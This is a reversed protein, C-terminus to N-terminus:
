KQKSQEIYSQIERSTEEIRKLDKDLRLGFRWIRFYFFLGVPIVLGALINLWRNSFPSKHAGIILIPYNNLANLIKGDKSNSLEEVIAELRQSLEAIVCDKENNTFVKLYNAFSHLRAYKECDLSIKGLEDYLCAYDPDEIIVEKKSIHRNNRLGLIKRIAEIYTDMNFVVSDNNSKYTFFVGMPALVFTSIWAGIWIHWEGEKGMKTGMTNVIYYILFIIVSVIVPMGLGGKRIIAGLPAGIFFFVLCALSLAIKNHWELQHKRLSKDSESMMISKFSLDNQMVVAKESAAKLFRAQQAKSSVRFLSDANITKAVSTKLKASDMPTLRIPELKSLAEKYYNRGISDYRTSMSDISHELEKISKSNANGSFLDANMMNFNSDFDILTHKECFSERRYPINNANRTQQKLNEFQEGSYLHLKLFKKDESIELKGSDAVLIHANEFGDSFNYIMVSYLMGTEKNKKKVYLNYGEIEDYFAGEPIDLEPSKQKMSYLLTTLKVNSEPGTVNQFYFSACSVFGILIILPRMIRLLPIGAAKMALLEFREGFNGFTILSALLVALPLSVPMLVLASYYFFKLLSNIDLGKGVMEDVYRWLFQMMFIFLCIFFTGVFLFSFSKIIFIDLKKIRLMRKDQAILRLILM